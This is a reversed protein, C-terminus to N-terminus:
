PKEVEREVTLEKVQAKGARVEDLSERLRKANATSSLLYLTEQMGNYDELSIMVVPEGRQRTIVAPEHDRCVDDMTQKLDARAQTFTLVQM